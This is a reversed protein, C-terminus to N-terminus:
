HIDEGWDRWVIFAWRFFAVAGIVMPILLPIQIM